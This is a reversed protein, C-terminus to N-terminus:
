RLIFHSTVHKFLLFFSFYDDFSRYDVAWVPIGDMDWGYGRAGYFLFDIRAEYVQFEKEERM